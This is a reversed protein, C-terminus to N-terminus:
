KTNDWKVATKAVASRLEERECVGVESVCVRVCVGSFNWM